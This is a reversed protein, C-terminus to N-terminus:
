TYAVNCQDWNREIERVGLWFSGCVNRRRLQTPRFDANEQTEFRSRNTAPRFATEVEM